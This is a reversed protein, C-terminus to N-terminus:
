PNNPIIRHAIYQIQIPRGVSLDVKVLVEFAVPLKGSPLRLNDILDKAYVPDTICLALPAYMESEASVLNITHQDTGPGQTMTIIGYEESEGTSEAIGSKSYIPEEGPLPHLNVIRSQGDQFIFNRGNSSVGKIGDYIGPKGLLILNSSRLDENTL